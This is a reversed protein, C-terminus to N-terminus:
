PNVLPFLDVTPTCSMYGESYSVWGPDNSGEVLIKIWQNPNIGLATVTDGDSLLGTQPYTKGPGSRVYVTGGNISCMLSLTVDRITLKDFHIHTNASDFSEVYFGIEGSAYDSDTSQGVLHDNIHFLFNPGQADVRLADVTDLDHISDDTGEALVALESPSSKLVFWKKTRPSITFAYYQDGSRRFALGYRFDGTAATKKSVTLVQLEMTANGFSEKQPEFVTTKYNPSTVEVHYYEPEHYGIFYNDFKRDPWGTAPNTFDDQYLVAAESGQPPPAEFNRIMLTDFHIHANTADFSEVYFGIEGSAYDADTVQGVLHDNIHFFFNAGQADVRLSDDTDLDHLSDDTGEALVTLESPSNKLVFWKKTRPSITFAYYQDGSRRFALGYRFDGTAATKASVTLVDLEITVDEFNQKQPQFVTTKSNPSTIEIHYYEPEHYGIFYNDFKDESWGTAPNTFDDQYLVNSDSVPAATPTTEVSVPSPVASAEPASTSTPENVTAPINGACGASTLIVILTAITRTSRYLKKHKM